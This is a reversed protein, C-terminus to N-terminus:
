RELQVECKALRQVLAAAVARRYEATARIDDIPSTVKQVLSSVSKFTELSTSRGVLADEVEGSTVITPGVSGWALSARDITGTESVQLVAAMSAIACAQTKRRGVKEYHHINWEPSRRLVIRTLIEGSKLDVDGPGVIFDSLKVRRLRNRSQIEVEAALVYLAPLTDGAPSATVINGGITGMHRIPPSGLVRIAKALVPFHRQILPHELVQTHTAGAGIVIEEGTDYVGKLAEMREVCILYNPRAVGSRLRVLLDTGGAYVAAEPYRELNDWLQELDRPLFVETM